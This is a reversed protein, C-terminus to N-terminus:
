GHSVEVWACSPPLLWAVAGHRHPEDTAEGFATVGQDAIWGLTCIVQRLHDLELTVQEVYRDLQGDGPPDCLEGHVYYCHRDAAAARNTIESLLEVFRQRQDADDCTPRTANVPTSNQPRREAQGMIQDAM